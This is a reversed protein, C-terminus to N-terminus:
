TGYLIHRSLWLERRCPRLKPSGSGCFLRNSSRGHSSVLGLCTFGFLKLRVMPTMCVICKITGDDFVSCSHDEGNSVAEAGGRFLFKAALSAVTAAFVGPASRPSKSRRRSTKFGISTAKERGVGDAGARRKSAVM